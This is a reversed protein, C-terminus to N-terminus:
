DDYAWRHIYIILIFLFLVNYKYTNGEPFALTELDLLKEEESKITRQAIRAISPLSKEFEAEDDINEGDEEDILNSAEGFDDAEEDAKEEDFLVAVEQSDGNSVFNENEDDLSFDTIRRALNTLQSYKEASIEGSKIGLVQEIKSKRDFDKWSEETAKLVILVEETASRLVSAPQDSFDALQQLFTLTHEYATRTEKTKPRYKLETGDEDIGEYESSRKGSTNSSSKLGLVSATTTKPATERGARSGMENINVRGWLSEVADSGAERDRRVIESRDTQIVMSTSVDRYSSNAPPFEKKGSGGRGSSMLFHYVPTTPMKLILSKTM